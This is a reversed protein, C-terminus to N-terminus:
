ETIHGLNKRRVVCGAVGRIVDHTEDSLRSIAPPDLSALRKSIKRAVMLWQITMPESFFSNLFFPLNTRRGQRRVVFALRRPEGPRQHTSEQICLPMLLEIWRVLYVWM